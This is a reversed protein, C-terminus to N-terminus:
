MKKPANQGKYCSPSDGSGRLLFMSGYISTESSSVAARSLSTLLKDTSKIQQNKDKHITGKIQIQLGDSHIVWDLSLVTYPYKKSM